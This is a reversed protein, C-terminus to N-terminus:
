TTCRSLVSQGVIPLTLNPTRGDLRKHPRHENYWAVIADLERQFEQRRYPVLLLCALLTKLTLIFREVVAISGHRAARSTSYTKNEPVQRPTHPHERGEGDRM